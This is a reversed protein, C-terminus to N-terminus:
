IGLENKKRILTETAIGFVSAVYENAIRQMYPYKNYLIKVRLKADFSNIQQYQLYHKLIDNSVGLLIRDLKPEEKEIIKWNKMTITMMVCEELVSFNISVPIDEILEIIPIIAQGVSAFGMTVEKKQIENLNYTGSFRIIGKKCYYLKQISNNEKYLSTGKELIQEEWLDPYKEILYKFDIGIHNSDM